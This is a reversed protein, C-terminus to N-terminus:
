LMRIAEVTHAGHFHMLVVGGWGRISAVLDQAGVGTWDRTDTDWLYMQYGLSRAISAVRADWAGYPPRFLRCGTNVGNRIEAAIAADSLRTLVLHSYTHNCVTHGQQLLTPVLWPFTDRCVGTPFFIAKLGRAALAALIAQIQGASACDDITITFSSRAVATSRPPAPPPPTETAFSWSHAGGLPEGIRAFGDLEVRYSTDIRLGEPKFQLTTDDLWTLSGAVQPNIHFAGEVTERVMPQNFTIRLVSNLPAAGGNPEARVIRVAPRDVPRLRFRPPERMDIPDPRVVAIPETAVEQREPIPMPPVGVEQREPIPAPPATSAIGSAPLAILCWGMLTAIGLGLVKSARGGYSPGGISPGM